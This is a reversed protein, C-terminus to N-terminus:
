RAQSVRLLAEGDVIMSSGPLLNLIREQNPVRELSEYLLTAKAFSATTGPGPGLSFPLPSPRIHACACICACTHSRWRETMLGFWVSCTATGKSTAGSGHM